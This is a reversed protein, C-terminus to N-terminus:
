DMFNLESRTWSITSQETPCDRLIEFVFGHIFALAKEAEEKAKNYDERAKSEAQKFEERQADTYQEKDRWRAADSKNSAEIKIAKLDDAVKCAHLADELAIKERINIEVNIGSIGQGEIFTKKM